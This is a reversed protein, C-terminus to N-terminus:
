KKSGFCNKLVPCCYHLCEIITDTRDDTGHEDLHSLIMSHVSNTRHVSDDKLGYAINKRGEQLLPTTETEAVMVFGDEDDSAQVFDFSCLFMILSTTMRLTYSMFFDKM